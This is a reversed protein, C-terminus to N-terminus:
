DEYKDRDMGPGFVMGMLAGEAILDEAGEQMEPRSMEGIIEFDSFVAIQKQRRWVEQTRINAIAYCM